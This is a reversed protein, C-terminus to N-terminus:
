RVFPLYHPLLYRDPGAGRKGLAPMFVLFLPKYAHPTVQTTRSFAMQSLVRIATKIKWNKESFIHIIITSKFGFSFLFQSFLNRPTIRGRFFNPFLKEQLIKKTITRRTGRKQTRDFNFCLKTM